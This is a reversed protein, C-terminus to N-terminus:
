ECCNSNAADIFDLIEDRGVHKESSTCFCPPLEEWDELLKQKYIDTNKVLATKSLKDIKTFVLAIPIGQEGAWRIFEIDITLPEHRSDILIFLCYLNERNRIYDGIFSKWTRRESRATKAYGYGPLDVLFWNKNIIFHNITQTKGPQGSVKALKQNNTLMNILSSKGVNSRGIFAYEPMTPPPCKQYDTNSMVFEASKVEM